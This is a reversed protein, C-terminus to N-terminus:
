MKKLFPVATIPGAGIYPGFWSAYFLSGFSSNFPALVLNKVFTGPHDLFENVRNLIKKELWKGPKLLFWKFLWGVVKFPVEWLKVPKAKTAAKSAEAEKPEDKEIEGEHDKDDGPTGGDM